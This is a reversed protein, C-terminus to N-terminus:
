VVLNSKPYFVFIHEPLTNFHGLASLSALQRFYFIQQNM